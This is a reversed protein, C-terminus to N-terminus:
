RAPPYIHYEVIDLANGTPTRMEYESEIVGGLSEPIKRSAANRRDVPYTLYHVSLNAFAWRALATVAERGYANGHAGAKIWIGLEPTDSALHHVGGHGLFEGSAKLLIAMDLDVGRAMRDRAGRIFALTEEIRDPPKPFMYTTIEATFERFIAEAYEESAPVLRLRESEIVVDLPSIM